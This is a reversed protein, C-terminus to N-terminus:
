VHQSFAILTALGLLEGNGSAQAELPQPFHIYILLGEKQQDPPLMEVGLNASKVHNSCSFLPFSLLAM